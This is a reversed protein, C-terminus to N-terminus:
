GPRALGALRDVHALREKGAPGLEESVRAILAELCALAAVSSVFPSLSEAPVALVHDALLHCPSRHADTMLVLTAGLAKVQRAFDELEPSYRQFDFLFVSDRATIEDLARILGRPSNQMLRVRPRLSALNYDFLDALAHSYRGGLLHVARRPDALLAVVEEFEQPAIIRAMEALVGAGHEAARALAAGDQRGKLSQDFRSLPSQFREQIEDRIERQFAPYGDYGLKAVLRLVTATSTASAEAMDKLTRLCSFPYDSLLLGVIRRDTKTFSGDQAALRQRCTSQPSASM